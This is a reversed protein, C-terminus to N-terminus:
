QLPRPKDPGLANVIEEYEEDSLSDFDVPTGKELLEGSDFSAQIYQMLENLEEQTGDFTDFCGPAFVLKLEKPTDSM